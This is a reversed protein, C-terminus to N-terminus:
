RDVHDVKTIISRKRIKALTSKKGVNGMAELGGANVEFFRGHNSGGV